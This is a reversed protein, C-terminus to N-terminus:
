PEGWRALAAWCRYAAEPGVQPVIQVGRGVVGVAEGRALAQAVAGAAASLAEELAEGEVEPVVVMRAGAAGGGRVAVMPRGARASTPGHIDRSADGPRWPRLDVLEVGPAAGGEGDGEDSADPQGWAAESRRPFVLVEDRLDFEVEWRTLGFWGDTSARLGRLAHPGRHSFRWVMPAASPGGGSVPRAGRGSGVGDLEEFRLMLGAPGAGNAEVLLGGRGSRGAWLEPPLERRVRLGRLAAWSAAEGALTFAVLSAGVLLVLNHSVWGGVAVLAGVFVWWAVGEPLLRPRPGRLVPTPPSRV